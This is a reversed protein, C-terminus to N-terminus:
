GTSARPTSLSSAPRRSSALATDANNVASPECIPLNAPGIRLVNSATQYHGSAPWASLDTVIPLHLEADGNKGGVVGDRHCLERRGGFLQAELRQPHGLM